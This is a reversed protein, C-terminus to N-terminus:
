GVGLTRPALATSPQIEAGDAGAGNGPSHLMTGMARVQLRALQKGRQHFLKRLHLDVQAAALQLEFGPLKVLLQAPGPFLDSGPASKFYWGHQGRYFFLFGGLKKPEEEPHVLLPHLKAKVFPGTDFALDAAQGAGPPRHRDDGPFPVLVDGNVGPETHKTLNAGM